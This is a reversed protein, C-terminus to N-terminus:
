NLPFIVKCITGRASSSIEVKGNLQRALANVLRSGLGTGRPPATLDMGRGDDTVAMTCTGDACSLSVRIIGRCDDQFAYKLANTFWEATILGLSRALEVSLRHPQEIIKEVTIARGQVVNQLDEVLGSLFASADITTVTQVGLASPDLRANIRAIAVVRLSAAELAFRAAPETAAAAQLRLMAIIASLDNRARHIIEALEMALLDARQSEDEATRIGPMGSGKRM